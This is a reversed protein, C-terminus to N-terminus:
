VKQRIGRGLCAGALGVAFLFMTAPEPVVPAYIAFNDFFQNGNDYLGVGGSSFLSTSLTIIPVSSSDLYAKYEDGVVEVTLHQDSGLLNSIEVKNIASSFVGNERIHWYMWNQAPRGGGGIILLVGNNIDPTRLWVGADEISNIDVEVSFDTLNPFTTVSSYSPPNEPKPNSDNYAAANGSWFGSENGWASNAGSNFDDFFLLAANANSICSTSLLLMLIGVRM